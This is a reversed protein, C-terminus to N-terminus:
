KIQYTTINIIANAATKIENKKTNGNIIPTIITGKIIEDYKMMNKALDM